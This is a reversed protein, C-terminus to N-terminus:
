LCRWLISFMNPRILSQRRMWVRYSRQAWVKMDAMQMAAATIKQNHDILGSGLTKASRLGEDDSTWPMPQFQEASAAKPQGLVASLPKLTIGDQLAAVNKMDDQNFVLIRGQLYVFDTLSIVVRGLGSPIPGSYRPGVYIVSGGEQGVTRTGTFDLNYHDLSIAQVVYYRDDPTIKPLTVVIPEARLDLWLRTYPTDVNPTIMTDEPTNLRQCNRIKNFDGIYNRSNENFVEDYLYRYAYVPSYAYVYAERAIEQVESSSSAGAIAVPQALFVVAAFAAVGLFGSKVAQKM